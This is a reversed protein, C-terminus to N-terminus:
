YFCRNLFSTRVALLEMQPRTLPPPPSWALDGVRDFPVYEAEILRSLAENVEPVLSLARCVNPTWRGAFPDPDMEGSLAMPVWGARCSLRSPRELTPAGAVASPFPRHPLNAARDFTDINLAIAAIGVAEVYAGDGLSVRIEESWERTIRWPADSVLHVMEVAAAPLDATATHRAEARAPVGRCAPCNRSARAELAIALRETGTWWTGRDGLRGWIASQVRDLAADLGVARGPNRNDIDM